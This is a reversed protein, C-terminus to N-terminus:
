ATGRRNAYAQVTRGLEESKPLFVVMAVCALAVFEYLVRVPFGLFFLTLGYLGVAEAVALSMIVVNQYAALPPPLPAGGRSQDLSGLNGAVVVRRVFTMAVLSIVGLGAFLFRLTPNPPQKSHPVVVQSVVVSLALAALMAVWIVRLRGMVKRLDDSGNPQM